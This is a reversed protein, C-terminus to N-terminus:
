VGRLLKVVGYFLWSSGFALLGWGFQGTIIWTAVGIFISPIPIYIMRTGEEVIEM